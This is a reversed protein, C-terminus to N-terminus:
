PVGVLCAGYQDPNAGISHKISLRSGAPIFRAIPLPPVVSSMYVNESSEYRAAIDGIDVEAGAAGVAATYTVDVNSTNTGAVSPVICLARYDRTTSDTVQVYTGSAGSMVTGRSTATSTGLTDVSTPVMHAAGTNLLAYRLTVTDSAILAQCRVAIRSGSAIRLPLYISTSMVNAGTAFAGGVAIDPVVVVESGAAGVGVDVLLSTEAGATWVGSCFLALMTAEGSSSALLQSWAGKTHITASATANVNTSISANVIKYGTNTAYWPLNGLGRMPPYLNAISM